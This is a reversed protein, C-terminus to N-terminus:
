ALLSQVMSWLVSLILIGAPVLQTTEMKWDMRSVPATKESQLPYVPSEM